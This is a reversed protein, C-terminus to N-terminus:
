AARYCNMSTLWLIMRARWSKYFTGNFLKPKLVAAFGRVSFQRDPKQITLYNPLSMNFKIRSFLLLIKIVYIHEIKNSTLWVLFGTFLFLFM